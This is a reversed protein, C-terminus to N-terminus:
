PVDSTGTFTMTAVTVAGQLSSPANAPLTVQVCVKESAGAALVRGTGIVTGNLSTGTGPLSAGACTRAPTTGTTTADGTVKMVLGGALNKGDPDTATSAATYALPVTGNNRITLVGATSNGPVMGALNITTFDAATDVGNVQLDVSGTSFTAGTVTVADTWAAQTALTGLSLAVGLGLTARLRHTRARRRGRDGHRRNM